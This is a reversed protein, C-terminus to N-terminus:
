LPGNSPRGDWWSQSHGRAAPSQLIGLGDRAAVLISFVPGFNRVVSWGLADFGYQDKEGLDAGADVLARVQETIGFRAAVAVTTVQKPVLDLSPQDTFPALRDSARVMRCIDKDPFDAHSVVRRNFRAARESSLVAAAQACWMEDQNSRDPREINPSILPANPVPLSCRVDPEVRWPRPGPSPSFQEGVFVSTQWPDSPSPGMHIILGLLLGEIGGPRRLSFDGAQMRADAEQEPDMKRLLAVLDHISTGECRPSGMAEELSPVPPLPRNDIIM